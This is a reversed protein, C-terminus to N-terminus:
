PTRSNASRGRHQRWPSKRRTTQFRVNHERKQQKARQKEYLALERHTRLIARARAEDNLETALADVLITL